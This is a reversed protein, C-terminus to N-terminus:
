IQSVETQNIQLGASNMPLPSGRSETFPAVVVVGRTTLSNTGAAHPASVPDVIPRQAVDVHGDPRDMSADPEAFTCAGGTGVQEEDVLEGVGGVFPQRLPGHAILRYTAEIKNTKRAPICM